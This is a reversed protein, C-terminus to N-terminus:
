RGSTRRDGEAELTFTHQKDMTDNNKDCTTQIPTSTPIPRVAHPERRHKGDQRAPQM